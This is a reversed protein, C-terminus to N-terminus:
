FDHRVGISYMKRDLTTVGAANEVDGDLYAGYLRTRKSMAYTAGVGFATGKATTVGAAESKSRAYGASIEFAGLPVAVGISLENDRLNAGNEARNFGASLRAVGFNYAGSVATYERDTAAISEHKQEQRAVGVDLNGARYRLNYSLVDRKVPDSAEDLGYGVGFTFGGFSPSEYRVQNSARSSYDPVGATYAIKTPSFESDWLNNSVALDRIDDFSTDHRGLKVTGFGGTLGVISQRDFASGAAQTGDSSDFGQELQFIAKLGGGLDESGRLGWRTSSLNGSFLQTTSVGNVKNSGISTDIRGYLTVSSQAMAAGTSALVALAILSKKM